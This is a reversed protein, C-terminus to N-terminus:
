GHRPRAVLWWGFAALSAVAFVGHVGYRTGWVLSAAYGGAGSGLTQAVAFVSLAAGRIEAPAAQSLRAPLRAELYNFAAFFAVLAASLTWYNRYAFALTALSVALLLVGLRLVRGPVKARETYLVFPITPPVSALFVWLYTKWHGELPIGLVDRLAHPVGVFAATLVLNLVFVGLHYPLLAGTLAAGLGPGGSARPVPRGATHPVASWLLLICIGALGAMVWFLGHMGILAELPPAGVLSVVFSGGISIGIVAMARTRVESRTLDALLATVPGSVAGAGQVLRALIVGGIGSTLAGIVSGVAYLVLGLTIVPRRGWRDSAMGFPIQFCAQVLGYAGMALGVLGASAGPLGAAYLALVPLLLFLGLMRAAYIAALGGLARREAPELRLGSKPAGSDPGAGATPSVL